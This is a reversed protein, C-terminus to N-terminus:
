KCTGKGIASIRQLREYTQLELETPLQSDSFVVILVACIITMAAMASIVRGENM